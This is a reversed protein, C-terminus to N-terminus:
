CIQKLRPLMPHCVWFQGVFGGERVGWVVQVAYVHLASATGSMVKLAVSAPHMMCGALDSHATWVLLCRIGVCHRAHWSSLAAEELQLLVACCTGYTAAVM